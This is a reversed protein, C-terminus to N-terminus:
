NTSYILLGVFVLLGVLALLLGIIWWRTQKQKEADTLPRIKDKNKQEWAAGLGTGIAIGIAIGVALSDLALGLAVGFGAGVSIGISVWYGPPHGEQATIGSAARSQRMRIVIAFFTGLSILVIVIISLWIYSQM